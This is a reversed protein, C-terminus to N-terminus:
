LTKSITCKVVEHQDLGTENDLTNKILVNNLIHKVKTSLHNPPFNSFKIPIELGFM